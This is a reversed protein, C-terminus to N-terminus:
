RREKEIPVGLARAKERALPTLVARPGLVLRAGAAAAAAVRRETVAGQNIRECAGPASPAAAGGTLEFRLRGTRLDERTKPNEFLDVLRRVFHQLDADNTIRVVESRSRGAADLPGRPAVSIGANDRPATVPRAATHDAVIERVVQAVMARLDSSASPTPM